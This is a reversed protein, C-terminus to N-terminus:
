MLQVSGHSLCLYAREMVNSWRNFLLYIREEMRCFCQERAFIEIGKSNDKTVNLLFYLKTLAKLSQTLTGFMTELPAQINIGAIGAKLCAEKPMDFTINGIKIHISIYFLCNFSFFLILLCQKSHICYDFKNISFQLDIRNEPIQLIRISKM